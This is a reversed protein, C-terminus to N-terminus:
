QADEVMKDIKMEIEEITMGSIKSANLVVSDRVADAM